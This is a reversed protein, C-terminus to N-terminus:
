CLSGSGALTFGPQFLAICIPKRQYAGCVGLSGVRERVEGYVAGPYKGNKTLLSYKKTKKFFLM